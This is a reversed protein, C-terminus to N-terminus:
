APAYFSLISAVAHCPVTSPAAGPDRGVLSRGEERGLSRSKLVLLYLLLILVVVTGSVVVRSAPYPHVLRASDAAFPVM